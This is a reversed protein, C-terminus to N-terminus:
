IKKIEEISIFVRNIPTIVDRDWFLACENPIAYIGSQDSLPLLEEDIAGDYHVEVSFDVLDLGKIVM